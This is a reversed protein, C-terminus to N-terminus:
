SYRAFPAVHRGIHSRLMEDHEDAHRILVDLLADRIALSGEGDVHRLAPSYGVHLIQRSDFAVLLDLLHQDSVRSAPPTKELEASVQYTQRSGAYAERSIRYIERFLDPTRRAALELAVLYSTGSTKLHVLGQTVEMALPYISFKDSGSHLSLKYPGFARAVAAHDSLYTALVELEGIYEVGKEFRGVYRPAFGVWQVGLRRMERAFYLHETVTTVDDTEDVAVEVEVPYKARAMLHRYMTVVHAVAAGYKAAARRIDEERPTAGAPFDASAADGYRRLFSSEDDELASWPVDLLTVPGRPAVVRVHDGPDITFSTFGAALCVDIDDTTKLHDADAGMALRWNASLAGFTAADFVEGPERGLRQMERISQQAFVPVVGSGHSEFALAHGRTALGLRDGVGASTALGVPRPRLHPRRSRVEQANRASLPGRLVVEDGAEGATGEFGTLAVAAAARVELFRRGDERRVQIDV